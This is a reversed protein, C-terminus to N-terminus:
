DWWAPPYYYEVEYAVGAVHGIKLIELIIKEYSQRKPQIKVKFYFDHKGSLEGAGLVSPTIIKGTVSDHTSKTFGIYSFGVTMLYKALGSEYIIVEQESYKALLEKISAASEKSAVTKDIIYQRYEEDSLDPIRPTRFWVGGMYNLFTGTAESLFLQTVIYRGTRREYELVNTIAGSNIDNIQAYIGAPPIEPRDAGILAHFVDGGSNIIPIYEQLERLVEVM